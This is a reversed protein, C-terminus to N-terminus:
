TADGALARFRAGARVYEEELRQVIAAVPEIARIVQLGQGCAWLDRWRKYADGGRTDYNRSAAVDLASPDM